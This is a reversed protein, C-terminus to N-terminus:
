LLAEDNLDVTRLMSIIDIAKAVCVPRTPQVRFAIAHQSEPVVIHHALGFSYKFSYIFCGSDGWGAQRQCAVRGRWPLTFM